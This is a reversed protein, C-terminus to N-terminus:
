SESQANLPSVRSAFILSISKRISSLVSLPSATPAVWSFPHVVTLWELELRAAADRREENDALALVAQAPGSGVDSMARVEVGLVKTGWSALADDYVCAVEHDAEALASIVQKALGGGGIVCIDGGQEDDSM